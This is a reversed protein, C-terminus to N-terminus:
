LPKLKIIKEKEHFEAFLDKLQNPTATKELEKFNFNIKSNKLYNDLIPRLNDVEKNLEIHCLEFNKKVSEFKYTIIDTEKIRNNLNSNQDVSIEFVEEFCSMYWPFEQPDIFNKKYIVCYITEQIFNDLISEAMLRISPNYFIKDGM